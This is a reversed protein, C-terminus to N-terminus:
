KSKNLEYNYLEVVAKNSYFKLEMPDLDTMMDKKNLHLWETVVAYYDYQKQQLTRDANESVCSVPPVSPGQVATLPVSVGSSLAYTLKPSPVFDPANKLQVDGTIEYVPAANDSSQAFAGIFNGCIIVLFLTM